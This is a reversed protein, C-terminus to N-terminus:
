LFGLETVGNFPRVHCACSLDKTDLFIRGFGGKSSGQRWVENAIYEAVKVLPLLRVQTAQRQRPNRFALWTSFKLKPGAQAIQCV